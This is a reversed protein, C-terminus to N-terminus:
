GGSPVWLLFGCYATMEMLVPDPLIRRHGNEDGGDGEDVDTFREETENYNWFKYNHIQMHLEFVHLQPNALTYRSLSNLHGKFSLSLKRLIYYSM